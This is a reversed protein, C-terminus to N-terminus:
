PAPELFYEPFVTWARRFAADDRCPAAWLARRRRCARDLSPGYTDALEDEYDQLARERGALWAAAARGAAQGSAM